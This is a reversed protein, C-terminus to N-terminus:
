QNAGSDTSLMADCLCQFLYASNAMVGDRRRWGSSLHQWVKDLAVHIFLCLSKSGKEDGSYIPLLGSDLNMHFIADHIAILREPQMCGQDFILSICLCEFLTNVLKQQEKATSYLFIGQTQQKLYDAWNVYLKEKVEVLM